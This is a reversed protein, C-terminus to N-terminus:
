AIGGPKSPDEPHREARIQCKALEALQSSLLKTMEGYTLDYKQELELFATSFELQAKSVMIEREHLM